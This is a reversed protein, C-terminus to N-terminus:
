MSEVMRLRKQQLNKMRIWNLIWAPIEPLSKAYRFDENEKTYYGDTNPHFGM